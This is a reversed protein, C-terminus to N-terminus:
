KKGKLAADIETLMAQYVGAMGELKLSVADRLVLEMAPRCKGLLKRLAANETEAAVLDRRLCAIEYDVQDSM